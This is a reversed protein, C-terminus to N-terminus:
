KFKFLLVFNEFLEKHFHAMMEEKMIKLAKFVPLKKRYPRESTLAEFVDAISCIRGYIHIEAGRLGYPYGTGDEREHHQLVIIKCEESLQNTESLIKYGQQPHLQIIKQEDDTLRGPKNLIASPVHVKGLDHLFFGAGLEHMNHANSGKFLAKSLLVSMVGVNVSHIYTYYDHSTIVLLYHTTEDDSLILDVVESIVKKGERINQVTPNDLLKNMMEISYNYVVKGKEQSPLSEDNIANRLEKSILKEPEWKKSPLLPQDDHSISKDGVVHSKSTDIKVENIGSNIIKTIQEESRIKFQNRLFPHEFWSQPLIVYMGVKLEQTKITKIM